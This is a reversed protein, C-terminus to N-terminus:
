ADTGSAPVVSQIETLVENIRRRLVKRGLRDIPALSFAPTDQTREFTFGLALVVMDWQVLSLKMTYEANPDNEM